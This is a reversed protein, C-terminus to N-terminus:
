QFGCVGNPDLHCGEMEWVSLGNGGEAVRGIWELFRDWLGDLLGGTGGVEAAEPDLPLASAAGATCLALLLVIAISGKRCM